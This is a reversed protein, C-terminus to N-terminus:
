AARIRELFSQMASRLHESREFLGTVSELMESSLQGTQTASGSVEAISRTVEQTGQAAETVNRAIEVTATNQQQAASSMAVAQEAISKVMRAISATATGSATTAAQMEQIQRDIEETAKSTQEALDKVEAAVVSFGKGAEGARAAEITANLALLNTQEAIDNILKTVDGIRSVVEQLSNVAQNTREVEEAASSALRSSESVQDNIENISASLEETASAVTQVNSTAEESASSVTMSLNTTGSAIDALTAATANLQQTASVIENSISMVADEFEAAVREMDARKEAEAREKQEAAQAELENTRIMNARFVSLAEAMRGIEDGRGTSAVENSTNGQALGQTAETLRALPRSVLAFNLYGLLVAFGVVVLAGLLAVQEVLALESQQAGALEAQRAALEDKQAALLSSIEQVLASPRGTAEITKALDVTMPARMLMIQRSAYEDIWHRWRENAKDVSGTPIGAGDMADRAADFLSQIKPTADQAVKSLTRDGTLLFNKVTSTQDLVHLEIDVAQAVIQQLAANEEVASIASVSKTYSVLSTGIGILAMIGFAILGKATVSLNGQKSFM